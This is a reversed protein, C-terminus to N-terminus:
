IIVRVDGICDLKLEDKNSFQTPLSNPIFARHQKVMQQLDRPRLMSTTTLHCM